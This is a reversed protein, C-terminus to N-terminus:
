LLRRCGNRCSSSCCVTPTGELISVTTTGGLRRPDDEGDGGLLCPDVDGFLEQVLGVGVEAPLCLPHPVLLM